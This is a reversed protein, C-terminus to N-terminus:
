NEITPQRYQQYKNWLYGLFFGLASVFLIPILNNWILRKEDTLFGFLLGVIAPAIKANSGESITPSLLLAFLLIWSMGGIPRPLARAIFYWLWLVILSGGLYVSVAINYEPINDLWSFM